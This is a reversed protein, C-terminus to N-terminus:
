EFRVAPPGDLAVDELDLGVIRDFAALAEHKLIEFV